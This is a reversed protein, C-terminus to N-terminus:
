NEGIGDYNDDGYEIIIRDKKMNRGNIPITSGRIKPDHTFWEVLLVVAVPWWKIKSWWINTLWKIGALEMRIVMVMKSLLVVIKRVTCAIAPNLCEFKSGYTLQEILRVEAM